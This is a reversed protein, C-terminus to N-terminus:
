WHRINNYRNKMKKLIKDVLRQYQEIQEKQEDEVSDGKITIDPTQSFMFRAEKDILIKAIKYKINSAVYDGNTGQAIFEAGEKYIKYFKFIDLLEKQFVSYGTEIENRLVFYPVNTLATSVSVSVNKNSM